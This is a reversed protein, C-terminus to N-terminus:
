VLHQEIAYRTAASRSSVGLKSYVSTLHFNVTRPSIVLKAAVQANTLGQAVLRLVEIERVTLRDPYSAPSRTSLPASAKVPPTVPGRAALAQEPTLARGEAWRAAFDKEGSHTRLTKRSQEYSQRMVSPRPVGSVERLAEAAGLLRTGWTFYGQAVAVAALHELGDAMMSQHGISGSITLSEEYLAHATKTDGQAFVVQGLGLLGMAVGRLSGIQKWLALSEELLPRARITESQLFAVMGLLFQGFSEVTKDSVERALLFSEQLLIHAQELDGGSQVLMWGM